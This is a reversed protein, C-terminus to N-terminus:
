QAKPDMGAAKGEKKIQASGTATDKIAKEVELTTDKIVKANAAARIFSTVNQYLNNTEPRKAQFMLELAPPENSARPNVSLIKGGNEGSVAWLLIKLSELFRSDEDGKLWNAKSIEIAKVKSEELGVRVDEASKLAKNVRDYIADIKSFKCYPVSAILKNSKPKSPGGGM